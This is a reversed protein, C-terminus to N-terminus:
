SVTSTLIAEYNGAPTFAPITLKLLLSLAYQGVGRGAAASMLPVPDSVGDRDADAMRRPANFYTVSPDGGVVRFHRQGPPLHQAPPVVLEMRSFDIKLNRNTSEVFETATLTASWGLPTANGRLDTVVIDNIITELETDDVAVSFAGVDINEPATINLGQPQVRLRIPTRRSVAFVLQTSFFLLLWLCLLSIFKMKTNM